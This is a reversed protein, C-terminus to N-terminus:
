THKAVVSGLVDLLASVIFFFSAGFKAGGYANFVIGSGGFFGGVLCIGLGAIKGQRTEAEGAEFACYSVGVVTVVYESFANGRGGPFLGILEGSSDDIRWWALQPRGSIIPAKVPLVLTNGAGLSESLEAKIPDPVSLGALQKLGEAGPRLVISPVQQEQAAAFVETTNLVHRDKDAASNAMLAWELRTALVGQAVRLSGVASGLNKATSAPNAIVRLKYAVIDYGEKLNAASSPGTVAREFALLGAQGFYSRLGPFQTNTLSNAIQMTGASLLTNAVPLRPSNPLGQSSPVGSAMRSMFEVLERNQRLSQLQLYAAYDPPVAGSVPLLEVNWLLHRRLADIGLDTPVTEAGKDVTWSKVTAPAVIDRHYNREIPPNGNPEPAEVRYDVWEGVIRTAQETSANGGGFVGNMGGGLGGVSRGIGGANTVADGEPGGLTDSVRGNLDFYKGQIYQGGVQLMTQYGKTPALAGELNVGIKMFDPMPVPSNALVIDMGQQEAVRLEQDLLVTDTASGDKGDIVEATRLTLTIRLHHYLAEPVSDSAFTNTPSAFAKGPEAGTFASDLNVWQGNSDQFQVWYHESAEALLKDNPTIVGVDVGAKSLLNSLLSTESDVYNVFEKQQKEGNAQVEDAARLLTSQDVGIAHSFDPALQALPPLAGPVPKAPEFLRNILIKAQQATLQGSAIQTKIGAKELLTALLLSRDLSNGARCLLTGLSGRLVGTYPEYRIQDRVFHFITAPDSGLRDALADIEFLSHDIKSNVGDLASYLQSIKDDAAKYAAEDPPTIKRNETAGAPTASASEAPNVSATDAPAATAANADDAPTLLTGVTIVWSICLAAVKSALGPTRDRAVRRIGSAIELLLALLVLLLGGVTTGQLGFPLRMWEKADPSAGSKPEIPDTKEFELSKGCRECFPSDPVEHGCSPCRM